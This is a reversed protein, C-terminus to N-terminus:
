IIKKIQQYKHFEIRTSYSKRELKKNVGIIIKTIKKEIIKKNQQLLSSWNHHHM